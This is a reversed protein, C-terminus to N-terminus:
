VARRFLCSSKCEYHIIFQATPGSRPIVHDAAMNATVFELEVTSTDSVLVVQQRQQGSCATVGRRGEGDRIVAVDYCSKETGSGGQEGVFSLLTVNIRQGDAARVQWPCSTSGIGTTAAVASSMYASQDTATVHHRSHCEHVSGALVAHGICYDYYYYNNNINNNNHGM